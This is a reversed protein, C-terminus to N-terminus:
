KGEAGATVIETIRLTTFDQRHGQKKRYGKRRKSKFVVIKKARGQRAIEGIVKADPLLPQGTEMEGDRNVLLVETLEVKDGVDGAIKEVNLLEGPNVKYQKGGNRIVAYM